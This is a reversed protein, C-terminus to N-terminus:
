NESMDTYRVYEHLERRLYDCIYDLGEVAVDLATTLNLFGHFTTDFCKYHVPVGAASLKAGYFKGDDRVADYAATIILAPPLGSFDEALIPSARVDKVDNVPDPFYLDNIYRLDDITVFYGGQGYKCRAPFDADPSLNVCPYLLIQHTIHPGGRSRALHCMVASINGGASDGCVSINAPDGDLEGAHEALWCLVAYSDEIGAPFKHEPALRYGVNVVIVDAHQCLYRAVGEHSEMDCLFFGGGHYFVMVPLKEGPKLKRPWYIRIPVDGNPGPASTEQWRDIHTEPAHELNIQKLAIRAEPTPMECLQLHGEAHMQDLMARSKADIEAM